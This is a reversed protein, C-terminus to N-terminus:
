LAQLGWVLEKGSPPGPGGATESWDAFIRDGDALAVADNGICANPQWSRIGGAVLRAVRVVQSNLRRKCDGFELGRLGGIGGPSKKAKEMVAVDTSLRV